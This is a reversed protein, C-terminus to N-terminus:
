MRTAISGLPVITSDTSVLLVVLAPNPTAVPVLSM